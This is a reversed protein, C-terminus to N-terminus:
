GPSGNVPPPPTEWVGSKIGNHQPSPAKSSTSSPKILVLLKITHLIHPMPM